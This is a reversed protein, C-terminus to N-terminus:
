FRPPAPVLPLASLPRPRLHRGAAAAPRSARRAHAATLRGAGNQTLRKGMKPRPPSAAPTTPAKGAPHPTAPSLEAGESLRRARRPHAREVAGLLRRSTEGERGKSHHRHRNSGSPRSPPARGAPGPLSATVSPGEPPARRFRQPRSPASADPLSHRPDSPRDARLPLRLPGPGATSSRQEAPESARTARLCRQHQQSAM